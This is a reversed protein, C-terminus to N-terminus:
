HPKGGDRRPQPKFKGKLGIGAELTVAKIDGAITLGPIIFGYSRSSWDFRFGATASVGVAMAEGRREGLPLAMVMGAGPMLIVRSNLPTKGFGTLGLNLSKGQNGGNEHVKGTTFGVHLALIAQQNENQSHFALTVSPAIAATHWTPNKHDVGAYGVGLAVEGNLGIGLEGGYVLTRKGIGGAGSLYYEVIGKEVLAQQCLALTPFLFLLSVIAPIRM